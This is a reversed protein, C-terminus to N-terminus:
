QLTDSEQTSKLRQLEKEIAYKDLLTRHQKQAQKLVEVNLVEIVQNQQYQLYGLLCCALGLVLILVNKKDDFFTTM